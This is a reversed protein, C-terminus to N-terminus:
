NSVKNEALMHIDDNPQMELFKTKTRELIRECKIKKDSKVNLFIVDKQM